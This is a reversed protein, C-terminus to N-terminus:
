SLVVPAASITCVCVLLAERKDHPGSRDCARAGGWGVAASAGWARRRRGRLNGGDGGEVNVGAGERSECRRGAQTAAESHLVTRAVTM